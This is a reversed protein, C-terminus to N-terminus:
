IQNSKMFTVSELEFRKDTAIKNVVRALVSLDDGKTRKVIRKEEQLKALLVSECQILFRTYADGIDNDYKAVFFKAETIPLVYSLVPLGNSDNAFSIEKEGKIRNDKIMKKLKKAVDYYNIQLSEAIEHLTLGLEGGLSEQAHPEIFKPVSKPSIKSVKSM